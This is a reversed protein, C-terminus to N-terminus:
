NSSFVLAKRDAVRQRRYMVGLTVLLVAGFFLNNFSSSLGLFVLTSQLLQVLLVGLVTGLITGEGGTLKAGGIVVAALVMLETGILATPNVFRLNSFYVVGAIGALFGTYGYVFLKVKFVNVGIRVASEENSGVAFIQRGLQTRYLLFWTLIGAAILFILFVTLGFGEGTDSTIQFLNAGGFSALSQPMQGVAYSTTGLTIAMAGFFVSSTGLTVILTPLRFLHILVGNVLGLAVGIVAAVAFGFLLNDIGTALMIKVASYAAVVAVATFSIDIGGSVLVVLVGLALLLTVSGSRITDFLTEFSLFEPSRIAVIVIYAVIVILLYREMATLKRGLLPKVTVFKM